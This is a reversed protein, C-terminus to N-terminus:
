HLFGIKDIDFKGDTSDKSYYRFELKGIINDVPVFGWYRSDNSEDRNDGMVFIHGEPVQFERKFPLNWKSKTFQITYNKGNLNEEYRVFRNTEYIFTHPLIKGNLIIEKADIKIRDGPLAIVRKAFLVESEAQPPPNFAIIDGREPIDWRALYHESLPLRIGYAINNSFIKDGEIITPNMSGTPIMFNGFVSARILLFFLIIVANSFIDRRMIKIKFLNKM